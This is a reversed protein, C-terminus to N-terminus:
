DRHVAGSGEKEENANTYTSPDDEVDVGSSEVSGISGEETWM